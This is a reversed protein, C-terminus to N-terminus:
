RNNLLHEFNQKGLTVKIPAIGRSDAYMESMAETMHGLLEKTNVNGQADYLRKSLSRIEHFTPVDDGVIGALERADAFANSIRGLKVYSGRVARGQNRVHHILYKSVVGTSKCKAIVDALSMGIADMHLALPIEIRISTKSRQVAAIEGRVFSREWRAITSRDQGSVLALLMANALWDNVEPAKALIANFEEIGNLRRRKVKVKPRETNTVPNEKMWGLSMGRKCLTILRRRIDAAWRKKDAKAIPEILDAVHKTTLEACKISGIGNVIAKDIYGRTKLTNEKMGETPMQQVLDAITEEGVALREALSVHPRSKEAAANAEHAEFIALALSIRGMVVTKRTIPNRYTYYGPRPEHLNAPWNARKKIRPRAAM